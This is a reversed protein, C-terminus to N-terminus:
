PVYEVVKKQNNEYSGYNKLIKDPLLDIYQQVVKKSLRTLQSIKIHPINFEITGFSM